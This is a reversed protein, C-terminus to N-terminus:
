LVELSLITQDDEQVQNHAQIRALLSDLNLPQPEQLILQWLGAQQLMSRSTQGRAGVGNAAATEQSITAETLGDSALLLTDGPNITLSGAPFLWVPLIGLPVGRVKLYEPEVAVSQGPQKLTRTAVERSWVLPYIHGANAYALQRTAPTYRALVLTIFCNNTVLDDLLSTNLNQMVVNPLDPTDQALERRLVSIASAMFLAAPVGKGSVDGVALWIDGCPAVFVEFFDGGVERAPYCCAQVRVGEIDPWSQRLLNHQIQRAVELEVRIQEAQEQLRQYLKAQSLALAAHEAVSPILKIDEPPWSYAKGTKYLALVALLQKQYTLPVVLQEYAQGEETGQAFRPQRTEFVTQILPHTNLSKIPPSANPAQYSFAEKTLRDGEVPLLLCSSAEFNQGITEVITQLMSRYDLSERIATTVANFLSERRLAGRLENTRQKLVRYTEAAQDVVAKLKDPAWPKTIYKFVQGSNIADVMDDVDTYGTLLIRITDPFRDVTRRLFETGNMEPMRQDSIIVAMEGVKDLIELADFAQNARFVQFDRRFTRYLLELNEPEDDVVMLKLKSGQAQSM